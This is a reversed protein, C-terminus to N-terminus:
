RTPSRRGTLNEYCFVFRDLCHDWRHHAIAWASARRGLAHLVRRDAAEAIRARIESEGAGNLIPPLDAGYEIRAAEAVYTLVPAGLSMAEIAIGGLAGIDFQDVVVDADIMARWLDDRSLPPRWEVRDDIALERLLRRAVHRDPGRDVLILRADLGGGVAAAFARIFRDNGKTSRRHPGADTVGWDLNSGHFFMLPGSRRLHRDADIDMEESARLDQPIAMFAIRPLRLRVVNELVSPYPGCWNVDVSRLYRRFVFGVISREVALESLDAGTSYAVVPPAGLIRRLPWLPGLGFVLAGALSIVM